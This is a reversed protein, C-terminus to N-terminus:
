FLKSVTFKKGEAEDLLGTADTPFFLITGTGAIIVGPDPLIVSGDYIGILLDESMQMLKDAYPNGEDESTESYAANYKMAAVRMGIIVRVLYPTNTDDTWTTVDFRQSLRGLVIAAQIPEEPLGDNSDIRLKTSELWPQVEAATLYPM